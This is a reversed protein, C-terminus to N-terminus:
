VVVWAVKKTKLKKIKFFGSNAANQIGDVEMKCIDGKFLSIIQNLEENPELIPVEEQIYKNPDKKSEPQETKKEDKKEVTQKKFLVPPQYYKTPPYNPRKWGVDSWKDIMEM